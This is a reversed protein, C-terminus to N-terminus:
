DPHPERRAAFGDGSLRRLFLYLDIASHRYVLARLSGRLRRNLRAFGPTIAAVITRLGDISVGQPSASAYTVLFHRAVEHRRSIPWPGFVRRNFLSVLFVAVDIEPPGRDTDVGIWDANAWDIIAIDDSASLHFINPMGFDGHLPVARERGIGGSHVTAEDALKMHGHIAALAQAARGVLEMSRGDDALLERLGTLQLREFAIEGRSDDFTVIDPVVFLGTQRGVERGALTRLRERRSAEPEQVKIVKNERISVVREPTGRGAKVPAAGHGLLHDEGRQFSRRFGSTPQGDHSASHRRLWLHPEDYPHNGGQRLERGVVAM